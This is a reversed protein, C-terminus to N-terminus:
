PAWFVRNSEGSSVAAEVWAGIRTLRGQYPRDGREPTWGGLVFPLWGTAPLWEGNYRRALHVHTGTSAGGECSPHGLPDGAEVLRGTSVRDQDALHLFFLVWGTGEYGDGDLDLFLTNDDSHAVVGAAPAIVWDASSACGSIGAPAFDLAAWPLDRGWGPHPGGTFAWRQQREFPLTLEPQELGGPLVEAAAEFPDGWLKRYAGALGDPGAAKEFETHSVLRSILYQAGVTGANQYMDIRSLYGGELQITVLDGSRWGYYGISLQEAVWLMQLYWDRGAAAPLQGFPQPQSPMDPNTVAGTRWEMVTLLLRPNISYLRSVYEITAAATRQRQGAFASLRGVYGAQAALDAAVDLKQQAPGFVFESDPVIQFTPGGLPAYYAPVQIPTGPRVTTTVPLAPNAALIEEVTTNFHAAIATVTDGTQSVYPLLEGPQIVGRTPLPTSAALTPESTPPAPSPSAPAPTAAPSSAPQCAALWLAVCGLGLRVAARGGTPRPESSLLRASM